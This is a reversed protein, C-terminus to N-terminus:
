RVRHRIANPQVTKQTAPAAYIKDQTIAHQLCTDACTGCFICNTPIYDIRKDRGNIVIANGPCVRECDGCLDCKDADWKVTGRAGPFTDRTHYPYLRTAPSSFLNKIVTAIM